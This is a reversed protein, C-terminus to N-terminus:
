VSRRQRAVWLILLGVATFALLMEVINRVLEFPGLASGDIFHYPWLGTEYGRVLAYACYVLPWVLWWALDGFGLRKDAFALWWLAMGLPVATHLLQDVLFHADVPAWHVELILHYVGFVMLISLLLGGAVRGPMAWRWAVALMAAAIMANTLHTFFRAMDWLRAAVPEAALPGEILDFHWRLAGLSLTGLALAALRATLRTERM